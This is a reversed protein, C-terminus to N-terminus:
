HFTFPVLTEPAVFGDYEHIGALPLATVHTTVELAVQVVPFGAVELVTVIITFGTSGTLTDMEDEMFLTQAPVVTGKVAVGTL